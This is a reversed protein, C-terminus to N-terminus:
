DAGTSQDGDGKGLSLGAPQLSLERADGKETVCLEPGEGGSFLFKLDPTLMLKMINALARARKSPPEERSRQSVSQLM